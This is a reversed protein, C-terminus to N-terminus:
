KDPTPSITFVEGLSGYDNGGLRALPNLEKYNVVVKDDNETACDDDLYISQVRGIILGQPVNGLEIIQEKRCFFAAKCCKLRPVPFHDSQVTELGLSEIESVDEPFPKASDTVLQAHEVQPIHVTFFEREEINRRTDKMSKDKKLGISMSILPPNSGIANFYSFPALNLSGSKNISIVWAVPRPIITQIMTKYIDTSNMGGFDIIM